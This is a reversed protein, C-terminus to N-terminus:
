KQLIMQLRREKIESLISESQGEKEIKKLYLFSNKVQSRKETRIDAKLAIFKGRLM